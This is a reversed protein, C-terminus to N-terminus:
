RGAALQRYRVDVTGGREHRLGARRHDVSAKGDGGVADPGVDHIPGVVREYRALLIHLRKRDSGGVAELTVTVRVPLLSAATTDEADSPVAPLTVTVM